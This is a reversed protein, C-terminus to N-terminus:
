GDMWAYPEYASCLAPASTNMEGYLCTCRGYTNLHSWICRNYAGVCAHICSHASVHISLPFSVTVAPSHSSREGKDVSSFLLTLVPLVSVSANTNYQIRQVKNNLGKVTISVSLAQSSVLALVSFLICSCVRYVALSCKPQTEIFSLLTKQEVDSQNRYSEIWGADPAKQPFSSSAM